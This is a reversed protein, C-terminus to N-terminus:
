VSASQIGFFLNTFFSNGIQKDLINPVLAKFFYDTLDFWLINRCNYLNVCVVAKYRIRRIKVNYHDLM